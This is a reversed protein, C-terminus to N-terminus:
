KAGWTRGKYKSSCPPTPLPSAVEKCMKKFCKEKPSIPSPQSSRSSSVSPSPTVPTGAQADGAVLVAVAPGPMVYPLDTNFANVFIGPDNESYAGPIKVLDSAKPVGSGSGGVRLQACAPYFEAGGVSHALHLAIIEHRILYNGPALAPPIRVSAVDGHKIDNLFWENASGTNPKRGVQDIKFWQADAQNFKDCTVSGCSAMYTLM